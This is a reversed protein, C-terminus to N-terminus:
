DPAKTNERAKFRSRAEREKALVLNEIPPHRSASLRPVLQPPRKMLFFSIINLLSPPLDPPPLPEPALSWKRDASKYFIPKRMPKEFNKAGWPPTWSPM